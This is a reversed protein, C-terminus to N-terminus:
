CWFYLVTDSLFIWRWSEKTKPNINRKALYKYVICKYKLNYLMVFTMDIKRM